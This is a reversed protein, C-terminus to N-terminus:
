EAQKLETQEYVMERGDDHRVRAFAITSLNSYTRDRKSFTEIVTGHVSTGRIKVRQGIKIEM